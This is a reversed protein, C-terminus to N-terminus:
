ISVVHWYEFYERQLLLFCVPGAHETEQVYTRNRTEINRSYVVRRWLVRGVRELMLKGSGSVACPLFCEDKRSTARACWQWERCVNVVLMGVNCKDFIHIHRVVSFYVFMSWRWTCRTLYRGVNVAGLGKKGWGTDWINLLVFISCYRITFPFWM